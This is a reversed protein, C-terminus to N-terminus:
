IVVVQTLNYSIVKPKCKNFYINENNTAQHMYTCYHQDINRTSLGGTAKNEDHIHLPRGALGATILATSPPYASPCRYPIAYAKGHWWLMISFGHGSRDESRQLISWGTDHQRQLTRGMCNSVLRFRLSRFSRGRGGDPLKWNVLSLDKYLNQFTLICIQWKRRSCCLLKIGETIFLCKCHSRPM